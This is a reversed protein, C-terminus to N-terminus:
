IHTLGADSTRSRRRGHFGHRRFDSYGRRVGVVRVRFRFVTICFPIQLFIYYQRAILSSNVKSIAAELHYDQSGYDMNGSITYALSETIYQLMTMRAIKEQITGYNDLTRGFQVRQTAHNVAKNVCYRMTGSLAASMGFRGNNLINM